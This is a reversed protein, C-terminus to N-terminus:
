KELISKLKSLSLDLDKGMANEINTILLFINVPYKLKSSFTWKVETSNKHHASGNLSATEMTSYAIGKFPRLFRVEMEIRSENDINLIEQEGAGAKKNGDWGYIFGKNGDTGVFTKKMNPDAMVWKNYHDQNRINRIYKFVDQPPKSISITREIKYTKRSFLAVLFFLIIISVFVTAIILITNM